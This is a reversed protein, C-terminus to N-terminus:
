FFCKGGHGGAGGDGGKGDVLIMGKSFNVFIDDKASRGGPKKKMDNDNQTNKNLM